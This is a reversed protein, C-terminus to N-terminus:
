EFLSGVPNAVDDKFITANRDLGVTAIQQYYGSGNNLFYSVDNIQPLEYGHVDPKASVHLVSFGMMSQGLYDQKTLNAGCTLHLVALERSEGQLTRQVAEAAARVLGFFWANDAIVKQPDLTEPDYEGQSSSFSHARVPNIVELAAFREKEAPSLNFGAPVLEEGAQYMEFSHYHTHGLLLTRVRPHTAIRDVLHLGSFYLHRGDRNVQEFDVLAPDCRGDALKDQPACDMAPDPRMWDQLGDHLCDSEQGDKLAWNPLKCVVPSLVSGGLYAAASQGVGRYDVQAYYYGHDHGKHGGRPDHHGILVVDREAHEAKGLERDLWDLQVTSLGGGYNVTYMGWGSRRHQRLEYTNMSIYTNDGFDWAFYLPGYTRRWQHFGDYLVMNRDHRDITRWGTAFTEAGAFREHSGVFINREWGGPQGAIAQRYAQFAEWSFDPWAKPFAETVANLLGEFKSVEEVSGPVAGMSVNGDHNGVTLFIPLTLEKLASVIVNAEEAYTTSVFAERIGGPSGGNHLDGNFTIFAANRVSPDDTGNVYGVFSRLHPQSRDGYSSGVSIQTDTVNVVTYAGSEPGADFIRVANYQYEFLAGQGSPATALAGDRLVEVRLDYLGAPVAALADHRFLCRLTLRRRFPEPMDDTVAHVQIETAGIPLASGDQPPVTASPTETFRARGSRPILYFALRNQADETLRMIRRSTGAVADTTDPSLHALADPEIRLVALLSDDPDSRVYLNPNGLTPYILRDILDRGDLATPMVQENESAEAYFLNPLVMEGQETTVEWPRDEFLRETDYSVASAPDEQLCGLAGLSICAFALAPLAAASRLTSTM